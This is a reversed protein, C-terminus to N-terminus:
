TPAGPKLELDELPQQEDLKLRASQRRQVWWNRLLFTCSGMLLCGQVMWATGDYVRTTVPLCNTVGALCGLSNHQSWFFELGQFILLNIM